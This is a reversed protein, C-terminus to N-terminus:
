LLSSGAGTLAVLVGYVEKPSFLVEESVIFIVSLLGLSVGLKEQHSSHIGHIIKFVCLLLVSSNYLMLTINMDIYEISVSLSAVYVAQAVCAVLFRKSYQGFLMQKASIPHESKDTLAWGLYILGIIIQRWAVRLVDHTDLM